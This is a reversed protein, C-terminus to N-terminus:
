FDATRVLKEAATRYTHQLANDTKDSGDEESFQSNTTSSIPELWAAKYSVINPHNLKALMKVERLSHLFGHVSRYRSVCNYRYTVCSNLQAQNVITLFGTLDQFTCQM